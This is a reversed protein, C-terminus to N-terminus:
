PSNWDKGIENRLMVYAQRPAAAWSTALEHAAQQGAGSRDNDGFIYLREIGSVPPLKALNNKNLASWTPLVLRKARHMTTMAGLATELGEALGLVTTVEADNVLRVVGGKPTTGKLYIRDLRGAGSLELPTYQLGLVKSADRFDSILAVMAPAYSRTAPIFRVAEHDLLAPDLGRARLYREGLSGLLPAAKGFINMTRAVITGDHRSASRQKYDDQWDGAKGHQEQRDHGLLGRRKLEVLIDRGNCGAFCHVLLRGGEGDALALSPIKDDHCVCCAMWQGSSPRGGLARGIAEAMGGPIPTRASASMLTPSRRAASMATAVPAPQEAARRGPLILRMNSNLSAQPDLYGILDPLDSAM